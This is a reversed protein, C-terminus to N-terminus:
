SFSTMESVTEGKLDNSSIKLVTINLTAFLPMLAVMSLMETSDWGDVKPVKRGLMRGYTQHAGAHGSQLEADDLFTQFNDEM